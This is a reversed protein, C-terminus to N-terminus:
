KEIGKITGSVKIIKINKGSAEFAARANEVAGREVSLIFRGEKKGGEV